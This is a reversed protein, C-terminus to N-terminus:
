CSILYIKSGVDMVDLQAIYTFTIININKKRALVIKIIVYIISHILNNKREMIIYVFSNIRLM